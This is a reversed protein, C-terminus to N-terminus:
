VANLTRAMISNKSAEFIDKYCLHRRPTSPANDRHWFFRQNSFLALPEVQNQLIDTVDLYGLM